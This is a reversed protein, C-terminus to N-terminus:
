KKLMENAYSQEVKSRSNITGNNGEHRSNQLGKAEAFMQRM